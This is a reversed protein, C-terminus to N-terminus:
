HTNSEDQELRKNGSDYLSVAGIGQSLNNMLYDQGSSLGLDLANEDAFNYACCVTPVCQFACGAAATHNLLLLTLGIGLSKIKM